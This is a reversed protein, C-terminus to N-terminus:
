GTPPSGPAWAFIARPVGCPFCRFCTSCPDFAHPVALRRFRLPDPVIIRLWFGLFLLRSHPAFPLRAPESPPCVLPSDPPVSQDPPIYSDQLSTSAPPFALEAPPPFQLPGSAFLRGSAPAFRTKAASSFPRVPLLLLRDPFRLPLGPVNVGSHHGHFRIDNRALSLGDRADLGL